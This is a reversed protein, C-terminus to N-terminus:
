QKHKVADTFKVRRTFVHPSQHPVTASFILRGKEFPDDVLGARGAVAVRM